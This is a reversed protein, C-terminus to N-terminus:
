KLLYILSLAILALNTTIGIYWQRIPATNHLWKHFDAYKQGIYFSRAAHKWFPVVHIIDPLVGGFGAWFLAMSFDHRIWVLLSLALGIILDVVALFWDRRNWKRYVNKEDLTGVYFSGGDFHPIFDALHHSVIATFFGIVPNGTAVGIAEGLLAHTTFLM